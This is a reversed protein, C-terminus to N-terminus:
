RLAFRWDHEETAISAVVHCAEEIAVLERTEGKECGRIRGDFREHGKEARRRGRVRAACLRRHFLDTAGVGDPLRQAM